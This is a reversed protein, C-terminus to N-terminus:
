SRSVFSANYTVTLKVSTVIEQDLTDLKHTDSTTLRFQGPRLNKATLNNLAKRCHHSIVIVNFGLAVFFNIVRNGLETM